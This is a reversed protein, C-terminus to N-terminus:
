KDIYIINYLASPIRLCFDKLILPKPDFCEQPIQLLEVGSKQSVSTYFVNQGVIIFCVLILFSM